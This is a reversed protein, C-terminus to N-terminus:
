SGLLDAPFRVTQHLTDKEQVAKEIGIMGGGTLDQTVEGKVQCGGASL